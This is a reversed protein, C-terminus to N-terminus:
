GSTKLIEGLWEVGRGNKRFTDQFEGHSESACNSRKDTTMTPLNVCECPCKDSQKIQAVTVLVTPHFNGWDGGHEM